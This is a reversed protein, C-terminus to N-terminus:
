KQLLYLIDDTKDFSIRYKCRNVWFHYEDNPCVLENGVMQERDCLCNRIQTIWHEAVVELRKIFEEDETTRENLDENPVYLVTLGSLRYHLATTKALFTHLSTLFQIRNGDDWDIKNLFYPAFVKEMLLLLSGDVDSDVRGFTVSDHFDDLSFIHNSDRIFYMVDFVPYETPYKLNATLQKSPSFYITVLLHKPDLFWQRIIEDCEDNWDTATLGDLYVIKKLESVLENLEEDSYKPKPQKEEM